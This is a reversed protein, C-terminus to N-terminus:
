VIQPLCAKIKLAYVDVNYKYSQLLADLTSLSSEVKMFWLEGSSAQFMITTKMTEKNALEKEQILCKNNTNNMKDNSNM